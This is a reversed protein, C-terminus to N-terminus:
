PEVERSVPSAAPTARPAGATTRRGPRREAWLLLLGALGRPLVSVMVIVVVGLPLEWHTTMSAFLQHLGEFAFAGLIAGFLSGMGGMLVMVLLHASLMWGVQSPHAFGSHTTSLLGAYGAIAGALVFAALKYYLPNYGMSRMRAENQKIGMLVRGFPARLLTRLLLYITLMSGLAVYFMTGHNELDLLTVGGLTVEPKLTLFIGDSGGAFSADHFLYFVMQSFAITAMIFFIGTTRMILLGIVLASAAGAGVCVVLARGISQAEYAPALLILAYGAVGFFVAQAFSVLGVIGVLLDLSLAVIALIMVRTIWQMLYDHQEGVLAAGVLPFATLAAVLALLLWRLPSPLTSM